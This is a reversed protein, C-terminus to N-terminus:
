FVKYKIGYPHLMYFIIYTTHAIRFVRERKEINHMLRTLSLKIFCSFNIIWVKIM